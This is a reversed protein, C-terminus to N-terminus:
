AAIPESNILDMSLIYDPPAYVMQGSRLIQGRINGLWSTLKSCEPFSEKSIISLKSLFKSRIKSLNRPQQTFKTTVPSLYFISSLYIPLYLTYPLLSAYGEETIHTQHNTLTVSTLAQNGTFNTVPIIFPDQYEHVLPSESPMDLM